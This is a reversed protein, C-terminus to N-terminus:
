SLDRNEVRHSAADGTVCCEAMFAYLVLALFTRRIVNATTPGQVGGGEM